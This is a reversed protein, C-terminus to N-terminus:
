VLAVAARMQDANVDIYRQVTSLQRHGAIAMLVRVGVGKAAMTSLMTRRGSHSSAGDIGVNRYLHHFHNALTNANFGDRMRKQTYFFKHSRDKPPCAAVFLALEKRLKDGVVVVRGRNGKTQEADLRIEERVHGDRDLVDEVRLASIEGVRMGAFFSTCVLARNRAAHKRTAVYDLVRRLEKETLTKAQGMDTVMILLFCAHLINEKIHSPCGHRMAGDLHVTELQIL